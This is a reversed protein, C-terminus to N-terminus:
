ESQGCLGRSDGQSCHQQPPQRNSVLQGALWARIIVFVPGRQRSIHAPMGTIWTHRALCTMTHLLDMPV